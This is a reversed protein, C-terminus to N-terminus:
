TFLAEIEKFVNILTKEEKKGIKALVPDMAKKRKKKDYDTRIGVRVRWFNKTKFSRIVSEVGKHGAPGRGFSLKFSGLPIDTDDHVILFQEPKLKFYSLGEKLGAGSTNMFTEPRMFIIKGKKTYAFKKYTSLDKAERDEMMHYLFMRGINHYTDKHDNGPNGLGAIVKIKKPNFIIDM